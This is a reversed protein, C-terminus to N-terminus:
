IGMAEFYNASVLQVQVKRSDGLGPWEASASVPWSAAALSAFGRNHDRLYVYEPYSFAYQLNGTNRSQFWREMRYVADPDAIPLPKLVVANYATFLTTNVGIGLGLTLVALMTFGPNLRMMRVAYKVDAYFRHLHMLGRAERHEDQMQTVGGFSRRAALRAEAPSMGRRVFEDAALALHEEIEASFEEERRRQRFTTRIRAILTSLM